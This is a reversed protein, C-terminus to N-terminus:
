MMWSLAISMGLFFEELDDTEIQTSNRLNMEYEKYIDDPVNNELVQMIGKEKYTLKRNKTQNLFRSIMDYLCPNEKETIDKVLCKM